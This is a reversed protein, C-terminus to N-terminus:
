VDVSPKSCAKFCEMQDKFLTFNGEIDTGFVDVCKEGDFYYGLPGEWITIYVCPKNLINNFRHYGFIGYCGYTDTYPRWDCDIKGNPLVHNNNKLETLNYNLSGNVTKIEINWSANIISNNIKKNKIQVKTKNTKKNTDLSIRSTKNSLDLDLENKSDKILIKNIKNEKDSNYKISLLNFSEQLNTKDHQFVLNLINGYENILTYNETKRTCLKNLCKEIKSVSVKESNGLVTLNKSTSDYKIIAEPNPYIIKPNLLWYEEGANTNSIGSLDQAEFISQYLGSMSKSNNINLTCLYYKMVQPNYDTIKQEVIHANCSDLVTTVTSDETCSFKFNNSSNQTSYIAGLVKQIKNVGNRNMVLIRWQVKEGSFATNNVRDVNIGNNTIQHGCSWVDSWEGTTIDPNNGTGISVANVSNIGLVLVM